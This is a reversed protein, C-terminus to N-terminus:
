TSPEEWSAFRENQPNHRDLDWKIPNNAIYSRIEQLDQENRIIHEHFGRQWVRKGCKRSVESKFGRVINGLTHATRNDVSIWIIMHVHNPMVVSCDVQVTDYHTHLHCMARSILEGYESLVMRGDRISGFIMERDKSCITVFYMGPSAYDYCKLRPNKRKPQSLTDSYKESFDNM